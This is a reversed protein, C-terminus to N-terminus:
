SRRGSPDPGACAQQQLAQARTVEVGLRPAHDLQGHVGAGLAVAVRAAPTAASPSRRPSGRSRAPRSAPARAAARPQGDHDAAVAAALRRERLPELQQHGARQLAPLLARLRPGLRPLAQMVRARRPQRRLEHQLARALGDRQGLLPRVAGAVPVRAAAGRGGRHEGRVAPVAVQRRKAREEGVGLQRRHEVRQRREVVRQRRHEPQGVDVLERLSEALRPQGVVVLALRDGDLLSASTARSSGSSSRAASTAPTSPAACAPGPRARRAAARRARTRRPCPAAAAARRARRATRRRSGRRRELRQAHGLARVGVRRPRVGLARGVDGRQQAARERDAVALVARHAARGAHEVVRPRRVGGLLGGRQLLLRGRQRVGLALEGRRAAADVCQEVRVRARRGGARRVRSGVVLRAAGVARRRPARRPRAAGRARPRASASSERRPAAHCSSAVWTLAHSSSARSTSCRAPVSFASLSASFHTLPAASSRRASRKAGIESRAIAFQRSSRCPELTSRCSIVSLFTPRPPRASKSTRASPSAAFASPTIDCPSSSASDTLTKRGRAASSSDGNRNATISSGTCAISGAFTSPRARTRCRAARVRWITTKM